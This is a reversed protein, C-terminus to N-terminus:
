PRDTALRSFIFQDHYRNRIKQAGRLTGELQFGLREAVRRSRHNDVACRIEVRHLKLEQLAYRTVAAAARTVLGRGGFEEAVWYGLAVSDNQWDIQHMGICGALRGECWIGGHFGDGATFQALAQEIFAVTDEVGATADIWPLYQALRARNADCLAFLEEAHQRELLRLEADPPLPFLLM